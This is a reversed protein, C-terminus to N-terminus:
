AEFVARLFPKIDDVRRAVLLHILQGVLSMRFALMMKGDVEFNRHLLTRPNRVGSEAAVVSSERARPAELHALRANPLHYFVFERSVRRSFDLDEHSRGHLDEDFRFKELVERRFTMNSGSLVETRVPFKSRVVHRAMGSHRFNGKGPASLFFLLNIGIRFDWRLDKYTPYNITEGEVGGVGLGVESSMFEDVVWFYDPELVVDDDLYTILDTHLEAAGLNRGAPLNCKRVISAIQVKGEGLISQSIVDLRSSDSSDVFVISEPLRKQLKISGLLRKVDDERNRTVVVVGIKHGM